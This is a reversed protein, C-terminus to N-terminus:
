KLCRRHTAWSGVMKESKDTKLNDCTLLLFSADDMSIGAKLVMQSDSIHYLRAEQGRRLVEGSRSERM